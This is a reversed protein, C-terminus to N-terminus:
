TQLIFVKRPPFNITHIRNYLLYFPSIYQICIRCLQMGSSVSVDHEDDVNLAPLLAIWSVDM